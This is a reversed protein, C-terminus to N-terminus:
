LNYHVPSVHQCIIITVVLLSILLWDNLWRMVMMLEMRTRREKWHCFPCAVSRGVSHGSLSFLFYGSYTTGSVMWAAESNVDGDDWRSRQCRMIINHHTSAVAAPLFSVPFDLANDFSSCFFSVLVNHIKQRNRRWSPHIVSLSVADSIRCLSISGCSRKNDGLYHYHNLINGAIWLQATKTANLRAFSISKFFSKM